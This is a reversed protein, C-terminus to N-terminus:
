ELERVTPRVQRNVFDRITEVLAQEEATLSM